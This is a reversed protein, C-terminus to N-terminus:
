NLQRSHGLELSRPFILHCSTWRKPGRSAVTQSPPEIAPAAEFETVGLVTRNAQSPALRTGDDSIKSNVCILADRAIYENFQKPGIPAPAM